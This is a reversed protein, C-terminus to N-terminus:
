FIATLKKQSYSTKKYTNKLFERQYPSLMEYTIVKNEPCLPLDKTYERINQPYLIDCEVFYGIEGNTDVTRWDITRIESTTLWRNKKQFNLHKVRGM